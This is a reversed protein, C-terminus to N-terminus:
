VGHIVGRAKSTFERYANLASEMERESQNRKFQYKFLVEELEKFPDELFPYVSLILNKKQWVNVVEEYSSVNFLLDSIEQKRRKEAKKIASRKKLFFTARIFVGLLLLILALYGYNMKKPIFLDASIFTKPVEILEVEIQEWKFVVEKGDITMAAHSVKPAAIAILKSEASFEGEKKIAPGISQIYFADGIRHSKLKQLKNALDFNEGFRLEVKEIKGQKVKKQPFQITIEESGLASFSLLLISLFVFIKKM